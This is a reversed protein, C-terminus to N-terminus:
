HTVKITTQDHTARLYVAVFLCMFTVLGFGGGLWVTRKKGIDKRWNTLITSRVSPDDEVELYARYMDQKFPKGSKLINGFDHEVTEYHIKRYATQRVLGPSLIWGSYRFQANMSELNSQLKQTAKALANELAEERTAFLGSQFVMRGSVLYPNQMDEDFFLGTQIAPHHNSNDEALGSLVWEPLPESSSEASKGLRTSSNLGSQTPKSAVVPQDVEPDIGSPLHVISPKSQELNIKQLSHMAQTNRVETVRSVRMTFFFMVILGMGIVVSTASAPIYNGRSLSRFIMTGILIIFPVAVLLVLFLFSFKWEVAATETM